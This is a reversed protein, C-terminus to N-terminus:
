PTNSSVQTLNKKEWFFVFFVPNGRAMEAWSAYAIAVEYKSVQTTSYSQVAM